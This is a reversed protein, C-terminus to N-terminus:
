EMKTLSEVRRMKISKNEEKRVRVDEAWENYTCLTLNYWTVSMYM